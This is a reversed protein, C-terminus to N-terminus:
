ARKLADPLVDQSPWVGTRLATEYGQSLGNAEMAQAAAEFDYDLKHFGLGTKSLICFESQPTANNPPMGIVGANIWTIGAVKRQFAIGSHGAIVADFTGCEAMLLAIEQEFVADDDASWIFRSVDSVGGHIVAYRRNEYEFLIRHPLGDMWNALERPVLDLAYPYWAKSLMDCTTGEEFGCGCDEAREALQIECNGAVVPIGLARLRETVEVPNACYAVLDGMCIMNGPKIGRAQAVDLLAELAQLNSYPGGFLLIDGNLVGLDQIKQM